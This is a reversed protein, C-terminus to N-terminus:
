LGLLPPIEDPTAVLAAAGAERLEQESGAGWLVGITPLGQERAGEVDYLRDGVMVAHWPVM